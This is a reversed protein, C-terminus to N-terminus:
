KTGESKPAYNEQLYRKRYENIAKRTIDESFGRSQIVYLLNTRKLEEEFEEMSKEKNIIGTQQNM